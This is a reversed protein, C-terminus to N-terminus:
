YHFITETLQLDAELSRKPPIKQKQLEGHYSRVAEAPSLAEDVILRLHRIFAFPDEAEKIKRGYLAVRAGYKQVEALLKFADLTTGAGGGLIGVILSPDYNILEELWRPGHYAIKLFEPRTSAPIGALTRVINDNVFAPIEEPPLGADTNPDFVELFYRFGMRGAEARFTRFAELNALDTALDNTFTISYLGLNVLPDGARPAILSGFQVEDIYCTSFSRSPLSRYKAGRGVWVDTTDNARIAPTVPSNEFLKEEHALRDMVSVSALMIDVLEQRVISRIDECFEPMSRFREPKATDAPWSKGPSAIGWAMDADKADALIFEKGAPNARLAALKQDLSKKM